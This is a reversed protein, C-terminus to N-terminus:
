YSSHHVFLNYLNITLSGKRVVKSKSYKTTENTLLHSKKKINKNSVDFFLLLVIQFM